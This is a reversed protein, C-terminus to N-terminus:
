QARKWQQPQLIFRLSIENFRDPQDINCVHGADKICILSVDQQGQVLAKVPTRFLYDEEGMVFLTPIGFFDTQLKKLFPQVAKTLSFWRIFEKQCMKAAQRVFAHRSETHSRKPMIIWAFLRYLWMYPMIYKGVHGVSLLFSTRFNLTVVAGGLVMSRIREPYKHAMTQIVITGLSIGVFHASKIHLHNLVQIVEDAIQVFTDGKKWSGKQSKGHGRLDILLVNFYKKFEKVQKYWISSSGGAGHIFVVWPSQQETTYTRYYLM